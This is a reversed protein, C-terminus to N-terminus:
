LSYGAVRRHARICKFTVTHTVLSIGSEPRSETMRDNDDSEPELNETAGTDYVEGDTDNEDNLSDLQAKELYSSYCASDKWEREWIVLVGDNVTRIDMM